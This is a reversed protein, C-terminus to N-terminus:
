LSGVHRASQWSNPLGSVNFADQKSEAATMHLLLLMQEPLWVCQMM